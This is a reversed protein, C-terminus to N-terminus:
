YRAFKELWHFAPRANDFGNDRSVATSPSSPSSLFNNMSNTSLISFHAGSSRAVALSSKSSAHSFLGSLSEPQFPNQVYANQM